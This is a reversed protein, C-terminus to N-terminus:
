LVLSYIGYAVPASAYGQLGLVQDIGGRMVTRSTGCVVRPARVPERNLSSHFVCATNNPLNPTLTQPREFIHRHATATEFLQGFLNPVVRTRSFPYRPATRRRKEAQLRKGPEFLLMRVKLLGPPNDRDPPTVEARHHAVSEKDTAWGKLRM